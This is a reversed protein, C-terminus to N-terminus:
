QPAQLILSTTAKVDFVVPTGFNQISYIHCSRSTAVVLHEYAMSFEIVRDAFELEEVVQNPCVSASTMFLLYILAWVLPIFRAFCLAHRFIEARM